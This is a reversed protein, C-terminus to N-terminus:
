EIKNNSNFSQNRTSMPNSYLHNIKNIFEAAGFELELQTHVFATAPSPQVLYTSLNEVNDNSRNMCFERSDGKKYKLGINQSICLSKLFLCHSASYHM